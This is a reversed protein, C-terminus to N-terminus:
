QPQRQPVFPTRPAITSARFVEQVFEKHLNLIQIAFAYYSEVIREPDGLADQAFTPLEHYLNLDPMLPGAATMWAHIAEISGQQWSTLVALIQDQTSRVVDEFTIM